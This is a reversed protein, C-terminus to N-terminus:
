TFQSTQRSGATSGTAFRGSQTPRSSRNPSSRKPIPSPSDGNREGANSATRALEKKAKRGNKQERSATIKRGRVTRKRSTDDAM